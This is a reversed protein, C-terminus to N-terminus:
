HTKIFKQCILGKIFLKSSKVVLNILFVITHVIKFWILLAKLLDQNYDSEMEVLMFSTKIFHKQTKYLTPHIIYLIFYDNM